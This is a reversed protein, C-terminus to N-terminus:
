SIARAAEDREVRGEGARARRRRGGARGPDAGVGGQAGVGRGGPGVRAGACPGVRGGRRREARTLKEASEQAVAVISEVQQAALEAARSVPRPAPQEGESASMAGKISVPPGPLFVSDGSEARGGAGVPPLARRGRRRVARGARHVGGGDAGPFRAPDCPGRARVLLLTPVASREFIRPMESVQRPGGAYEYNAISARFSEADGFPEVHFAVDEPRSRARRRGSGRGTCRRWMGSGSRVRTSSPRWGTRM